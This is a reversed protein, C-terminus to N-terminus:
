KEEPVGATVNLAVAKGGLVEIDLVGGIAEVGAGVDADASVQVQAVGLKGTTVASAALGDTAVELTIVSEDSSVWTPVGDVKAPNGAADVPNVAIGVKQTATLALSM